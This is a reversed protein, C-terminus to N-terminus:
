GQPDKKIFIISREYKPRCNLYTIWFGVEIRKGEKDQSKLKFFNCNKYNSGPPNLQKIIKEKEESSIHHNESM